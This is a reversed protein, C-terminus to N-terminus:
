LVKLSDEMFEVLTRATEPESASHGANNVYVLKSHPLKKHLKYAEIPACVVDYRGHVIFTPIHRITESHDLLYDESPFFCDHIFYHCEIRAFAVAFSPDEMSAISNADPVPSITM